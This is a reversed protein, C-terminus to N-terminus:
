GGIRREERTKTLLREAFDLREQTEGLEGELRHVDHELAELRATVDSPLSQPREARIRAIKVTAFAVIAVIPILPALFQPDM